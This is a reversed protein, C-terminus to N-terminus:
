VWDTKVTYLQMQLLLKDYFVVKYRLHQQLTSKALSLSHHLSRVEVM